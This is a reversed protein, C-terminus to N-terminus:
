EKTEISNMQKIKQIFKKEHKKIRGSVRERWIKFSKPKLNSRMIKIVDTESLGHTRKIEDFSVDDAWAMRIINDTNQTMLNM